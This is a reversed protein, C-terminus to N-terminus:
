NGLGDRYDKVVPPKLLTNMLEQAVQQRRQDSWAQPDAGAIPTRADCRVIFAGWNTLVPGYKEGPGLAAVAGAFEPGRRRRADLLGTFSDSQLEVGPNEAAYQELSKGTKVQEMAQGAMATWLAKEKEQRVRWSAAAKVKEFDQIGGLAIDALEFVYYGDAGRQPRVFIEGKKATRAWGVLQSPSEVSIGGINEQDVVWPPVQQVLLGFVQALTEFRGPKVQDLFARVSDRAAAIVETGMKVRVLLRRIAVSDKKASDLMVIQWGYGALYPQSYAGPKLKSVMTDTKPDFQARPFMVANTDGTLDSFDLVTLNFSEGKQLQAYARDILDKADQSDQVAVRLPFTVFRLHRTEKKEFDEKHSDYFARAEAETPEVKEKLAKAGFYLSSVKWTTNADTLGDQAEGNTVRYSNIVDIRFKEKPLMDVLENFYKTVMERNEPANLVQMYKQPDFKGDTMLNPDSRMQEPPNSKIIELIEEQTIKINADRTIKGWMMQDTIYSWVQQEIIAYDENSLDRLRNEKQYKDQLYSQAARYQEITIKEKGIMGVLGSNEPSQYRGSGRSGVLQWLESLLFGAIFAVAVVIMIVRVRKRMDSLM